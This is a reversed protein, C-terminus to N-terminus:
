GAGGSHYSTKHPSWRFRQRSGAWKRPLRTVEGGARRRPYNERRQPRPRARRRMVRVDVRPSALWTREASARVCLVDQEVGALAVGSPRHARLLQGQRCHDARVSGVRCRQHGPLASPQHGDGRHQPGRRPDSPERSDVGFGAQPSPGASQTGGRQARHCSQAADQGQQNIREAPPSEGAGIATTQTVQPGFAESECNGDVGWGHHRDDGIAHRRCGGGGGSAGGAVTYGSCRRCFERLLPRRTRPHDHRKVSREAVRSVLAGSDRWSEGCVITWELPSPFRQPYASVVAESRQAIEHAPPRAQPGTAGVGLEVLEALWAVHRRPSGGPPADGFRTTRYYAERMDADRVPGVVAM